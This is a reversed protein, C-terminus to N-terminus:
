VSTAPVIDAGRAAALESAVGSVTATSEADPTLVLLQTEALNADLKELAPGCFAAVASWDHPLVLVAHQSRAIGTSEKADQEM